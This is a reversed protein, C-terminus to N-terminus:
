KGTGKAVAERVGFIQAIRGLLGLIGGAEPEEQSAQAFTQTPTETLAFTRVEDPSVMGLRTRAEKEVYQLSEMSSLTQKLSENHMRLDNLSAEMSAIRQNVQAIRAPQWVLIGGALVLLLFYAMGLFEVPLGERAARRHHERAPRAPLFSAQVDANRIM